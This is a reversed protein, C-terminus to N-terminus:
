KPLSSIENHMKQVVKEEHEYSMILIKIEFRTIEM